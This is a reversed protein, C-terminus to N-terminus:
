RGVKNSRRTGKRKGAEGAEAGPWVACGASHPVKLGDVAAMREKARTFADELPLQAKPVEDSSACGCWAGFLEDLFPSTLNDCRPSLYREEAACAALVRRNEGGLALFVGAHCTAIVLVQPGEFPALCAELHEPRLITDAEERMPDMVDESTTLGELSGHNVAIFLLADAPESQAAIKYILRELDERTARRVSTQLNRPQLDDHVLCAHIERESVGLNRAAQFALELGNAQLSFDDYPYLVGPDVEARRKEKDTPRKESLRQGKEVQGCWLIARNV